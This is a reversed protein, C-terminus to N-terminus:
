EGIQHTVSGTLEGGREVGDEGVCSDCDHLNWRPTRLRVAVRLPEDAGDSGLEGVPHHDETAPMQVRHDGLVDLVVVGLPGMASLLELWGPRLRDGVLGVDRGDVAM